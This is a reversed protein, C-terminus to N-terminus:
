DWQIDCNKPLKTFTTRQAILNNHLNLSLLSSLNSFNPVTMIWNGSLDLRLLSFLNSFDPLQVILMLGPVTVIMNSHLDLVQLSSLNSFNPVRVIQNNSLYLCLLPAGNLMESCLPEILEHADTLFNQLKKDSYRIENICSLDLKQDQLDNICLRISDVVTNNDICPTDTNAMVENYVFRLAWKLMGEHQLSTFIGRIFEHNDETIVSRLVSRLLSVVANAFINRADQSPLNQEVIDLRNILERAFISRAHLNKIFNNLFSLAKDNINQTPIIKSFFKGLYVHIKRADAQSLSDDITQNCQMLLQFPEHIM